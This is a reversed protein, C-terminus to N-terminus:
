LTYLHESWRQRNLTVMPFVVKQKVKARSWLLIYHEAVGAVLGGKGASVLRGVDEAVLPTDAKHHATVTFLVNLRVVDAGVVALAALQEVVKDTAVRAQRVRQSDGTGEQTRPELM